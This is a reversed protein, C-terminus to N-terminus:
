ILFTKKGCVYKANHSIDRCLRVQHFLNQTILNVSLNRHQSGKTFLDCVARSYVGNLLDELVLLCPLAQVNEFYEPVGEHIQVNKKITKLQQTSVASQESNCWIIGAPFNPETCLTDLNQLFRICFTSKGPGTPGGIICTFLHEFRIDGAM